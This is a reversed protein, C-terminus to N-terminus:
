TLGLLSQIKKKKEKEKVTPPGAVGKPWQPPQAVVLGAVGKPWQPPQAVVLGAPRTTAWGGWHGLPHDFWGRHWGEEKVNKKKKKEKVPPPGAVGKPWQPPWGGGIPPDAV